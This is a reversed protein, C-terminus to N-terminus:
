RLRPDDNRIGKRMIDLMFLDDATDARGRMTRYELRAQRDREAKKEFYISGDAPDAKLYHIREFSRRSKLVIQEGLKGLKMAESLKQLSITGSVFDQAFSFYSDDARYGIVVDYDEPSLFFHEQLYQKAEEAISNKQWYSRYKTLVALWNLITYEPSNLNLVSLGQMDFEYQNAYGDCDRSCAWECALSYSETTYFGSGYDNKPKGGGFVPAEVIHDSGHYILM